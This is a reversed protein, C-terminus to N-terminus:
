LIFTRSMWSQLVVWKGYQFIISSARDVQDDAYWQRSGRYSEVAIFSRIM